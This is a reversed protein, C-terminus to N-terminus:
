PAAAPVSAPVVAAPPPSVAISVPAAVVQGKIAAMIGQLIMQGITNAKIQPIQNLLECVGWMVTAIIGWNGQLWDQLNM